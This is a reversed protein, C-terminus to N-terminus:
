VNVKVGVETGQLSIHPRKVDPLRLLIDSELDDVLAKQKKLYPKSTDSCDNPTDVFFDQALVDYARSSVEPLQLSHLSTATLTHTTRTEHISICCRM